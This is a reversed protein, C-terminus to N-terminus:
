RADLTRCSRGVEVRKMGRTVNVKVLPEDTADLLWVTQNGDADRPAEGSTSPALKRQYANPAKPNEGFVVTVVDTCANHLEFPKRRPASSSPSPSASSSASAAGADSAVAPEAPAPPPTAAKPAERGGCATALSLALAAVLARPLPMDAM